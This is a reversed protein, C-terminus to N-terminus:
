ERGLRRWAGHNDVIYKRRGQDIVTGPHHRLMRLLLHVIAEMLKMRSSVRKTPPNGKATFIPCTDWMEEGCRPCAIGNKYPENDFAKKHIAERETNHQELTKVEAVVNGRENRAGQM